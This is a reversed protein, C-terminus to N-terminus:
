EEYIDAAIKLISSPMNFKIDKVTKMNVSIDLPDEFLQKLESPNKGNLIKAFKTANYSGLSQYGADDSISIMLGKKVYKSGVMSFSPIRSKKFIAAIAAEQRDVCTLGTVYVADSVKSLQKYCDLCSKNSLDKDGISDNVKCTAVQFGREEAVRYVEDLASYIRGDETDEYALGLTKFGVIRHFMRIQRLYRDPDVRATVHDWGSNKISKIIGAKVPESTSVVLTPVSHYNNALDVGAWTGMAIVLDIKKTKLKRILEKKIEARIEATWDASYCDEHSFSLYPSNNNSLWEWYPKSIEDSYAPLSQKKLWGLEILGNILSRMTDVYDSFAGGEYYAIRWKKGNNTQPSTKAAYVPVTLIFIHLVLFLFITKKYM